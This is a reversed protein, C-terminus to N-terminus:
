PRFTQRNNCEACYGGSVEGGCNWCKKVKNNYNKGVHCWTTKGKSTHAYRTYCYISDGKGHAPYRYPGTAPNGCVPCTVKM